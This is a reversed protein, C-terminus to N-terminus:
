CVCTTDECTYKNVKSIYAYIRQTCESIKMKDKKHNKDTRECNNKILDILPYERSESASKVRKM